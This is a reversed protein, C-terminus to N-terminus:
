FHTRIHAVVLCADSLDEIGMAHAAFQFNLREGVIRRTVIKEILHIQLVAVFIVGDVVNLAHTQM